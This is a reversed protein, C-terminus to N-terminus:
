GVWIGQRQDRKGGRQEKRRGEKQGGAGKQERGWSKTKQERRRRWSAREGEAEMEKARRGEGVGM